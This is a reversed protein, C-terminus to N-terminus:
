PLAEIMKYILKLQSKLSEQVQRQMLGFAHALDLCASAEALSGLSISFFRRRDRKYHRKGNGEALNLFASSMARNLQDSLFANGKPWRAVRRAVEEALSALQKYCKLKEHNM